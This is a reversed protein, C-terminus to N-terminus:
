IKLLTNREQQTKIVNSVYSIIKLCKVARHQAGDSSDTRRNSLRYKMEVIFSESAICHQPSIQVTLDDFPRSPHHVVGHQAGGVCCWGGNGKSSESWDCNRPMAITVLIAMDLRAVLQNTLVQYTGIPLIFIVLQLFNAM